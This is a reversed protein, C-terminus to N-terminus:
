SRATPGSDLLRLGNKQDALPSNPVASRKKQDALGSKRPCHRRALRTYRTETDEGPPLQPYQSLLIPNGPLPERIWENATTEEAILLAEADPFRRPDAFVHRFLVHHCEHLLVGGVEALSCTTVFDANFLLLIRDQRVTVGVTPIASTAHTDWAAVFRAHFPYDHLLRREAVELIGRALRDNDEKM